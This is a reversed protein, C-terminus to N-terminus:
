AREINVGLVLQGNKRSEDAYDEGHQAAQADYDFDDWHVRVFKHDFAWYGVFTGRRQPAAGTHQATDRLFKSAYRVRAGIELMRPM